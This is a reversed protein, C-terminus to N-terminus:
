GNREFSGLLRKLKGYGILHDGLFSFLYQFPVGAVQKRCLRDCRKCLDLSGVDTQLSTRLTVYRENNWIDKISFERVNGMNMCAMYDQPCPTVTGDWCIVMAYWPFTCVSYTREIIEPADHTVWTYEKKTIIEDVGADKFRKVLEHAEDSELVGKYKELDIREIIVYPYQSGMEKRIKMFSVINSVTQEFDAGRRIDEYVERKFGDFSISIMDPQAAILQRAIADNLVTANTHFRVKIQAERAYIIMKCLDPNLLPEGRHHIYIDSVFSQAEDIIKKFLEIDMIGRREGQLDKNPCMVCELNCALSSEVWLRIPLTDLVTARRKYNMFIKALSHIKKYINM